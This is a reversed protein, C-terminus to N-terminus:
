GTASGTLRDGRRVPGAGGSRFGILSWRTIAGGLRSGTPRRGSRAPALIRATCRSPRAMTWVFESSPRVLEIRVTRDDLARLGEVHLSYDTPAGGASREAFARMGLIQDKVLWAGSSALKADALRKLSFVVDRALVQRRMPRTERGDGVLGFCLDADFWANTVLRFTYVRGENAVEPLAEALGPILRYPRAAYDYEVLTEYVLGVARGAYVSAAQAPDLSAVRDLSRRFVAPEQGAAASACLALLLAFRHRGRTRQEIWEGPTTDRVTM